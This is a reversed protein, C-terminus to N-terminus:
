FEGAVANLCCKKFKKGSGCPCPDNRGVDRYPNEAIYPADFVSDEDEAESWVGEGWRARRRATEERFAESYGHWQSLEGITDTFPQYNADAKWRDPDALTEALEREFDEITVDPVDLISTLAAMDPLHRRAFDATEALGLVTVASVWSSWGFDTTDLGVRVPYDALFVKARERSLKGTLVQATWAEFVANRVFDDIDLDALAEELVSARDGVLSILVSGLTETVSDGLLRDLEEAPLKLVRMLPAFARSDGIEGLVHVLVALARDEVDGSRGAAIRELVPVAKDVFAAPAALAARIAEEPVRDSEAFSRIIEEFTM